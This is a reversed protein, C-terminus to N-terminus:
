VFNGSHQNSIATHLLANQIPWSFTDLNSSSFSRIYTLCAKLGFGFCFCVSVNKWIIILNREKWGIEGVRDRNM